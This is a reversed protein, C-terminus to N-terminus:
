DRKKKTEDSKRGAVMRQKKAFGGEAREKKKSETTRWGGAKIEETNILKRTERIEGYKLELPPSIITEM